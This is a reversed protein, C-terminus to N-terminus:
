SRFWGGLLSAGYVFLIGGLGYACVADLISSWRTHEDGRNRRWRVAQHHWVFCLLGCFIYLVGLLWEPARDGTAVAVVFAVAGIGLLIWM